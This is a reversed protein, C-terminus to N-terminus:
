TVAIMTCRQNNMQESLAAALLKIFIISIINLVPVIFEQCESQILKQFRHNLKPAALVSIYFINASRINRPMYLGFGNPMKVAKLRGLLNM